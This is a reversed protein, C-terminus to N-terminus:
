VGADILTWSGNAHTVAFVNVFAIRLGRVGEAIDDMPVIHEKPIEPNSVNSDAMTSGCEMAPGTPPATGDQRQHRNPDVPFGPFRAAARLFKGTSLSQSFWSDM